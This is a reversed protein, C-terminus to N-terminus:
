NAPIPFMSSFFKGDDNTLNLYKEDAPDDDEEDDEIAEEIAKRALVHNTFCLGVECM